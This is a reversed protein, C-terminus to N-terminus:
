KKLENLVEKVFKVYEKAQRTNPDYDHVAKKALHSEGVAVGESITSKFVHFFESIVPLITKNLITKPKLRTILAGLVNINPNIRRKISDITSRLGNMGDVSFKEAQAPIIVHTSAVLANITFISLSPPCDIVVYHFEKLQSLADRLAYPADVNVANVELEALNISSPLLSLKKYKTQIIATKGSAKKSLVDYVSHELTEPNVFLGTSNAQPDTDVLLTQKGTKSLEYALNIATTTKGEGGKQNAVSITYRKSNSKLPM